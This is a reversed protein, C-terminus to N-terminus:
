LFGSPVFGPHGRLLQCGTSCLHSIKTPNQCFSSSALATFSSSVSASLAVRAASSVLSTPLLQCAHHIALLSEQLFDPLRSMFSDGLQWFHAEDRMEKTFIDSPNIKGSIHNVALSKDQVWEWVSSKHLKIHHAVKSTM